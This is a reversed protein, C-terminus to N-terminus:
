ARAPELTIGIQNGFRSNARQRIQSLRETDLEGQDGGRILCVVIKAEFLRSSITYAANLAATIRDEDPTRNRLQAEWALFSISKFVASLPLAAPDPGWDPETGWAFRGARAHDPPLAIVPWRLSEDTYLEPKFVRAITGLRAIGDIVDFVGAELEHWIMAGLPMGEHAAELFDLVAAQNPVTRAVPLPVERRELKEGIM